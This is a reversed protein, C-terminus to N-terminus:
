GIDCGHAPDADVEAEGILGSKGPRNIRRGVPYSAAIEGAIIAADAGVRRDADAAAAGEQDATRLIGVCQLRDAYLALGTQVDRCADGVDFQLRDPEAAATRVPVVAMVMM